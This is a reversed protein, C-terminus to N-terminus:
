QRKWVRTCLCVFVCAVVFVGRVLRFSHRQLAKKINNTGIFLSEHYKATRCSDSDYRSCFFACLSCCGDSDLRIVSCLFPECSLWRRKVSSFTTLSLSLRALSISPFFATMTACLWFWEKTADVLNFSLSIIFFFSVCLHLFVVSLSFSLIHLSFLM